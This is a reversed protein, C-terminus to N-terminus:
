RLHWGILAERSHYHVLRGLFRCLKWYDYTFVVSRLFIYINFFFLECFLWIANVLNGFHSNKEQYAQEMKNKEM